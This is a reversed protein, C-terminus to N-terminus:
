STERLRQLIAVSNFYFLTGFTISPCCMFIKVFTVTFIDSQRINKEFNNLDNVGQMVAPINIYFLSGPIVCSYGM